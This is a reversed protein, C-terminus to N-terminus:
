IKVEELQKLFNRTKLTAIYVEWIQILNQIFLTLENLNLTNKIYINLCNTKNNKSIHFSCFLNKIVPILLKFYIM